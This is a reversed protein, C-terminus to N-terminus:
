KSLRTQPDKDVSQDSVVAKQTKEASDTSKSKRTLLVTTRRGVAENKVDPQHRLEMSSSKRSNQRSRTDNKSKDIAVDDDETDNERKRSTSCKNAAKFVFYNVLLFKFIFKSKSASNTSGKLRLRKSRARVVRSHVRKVFIKRTQVDPISRCRKLLEELEALDHDSTMRNVDAIIKETTDGEAMVNEVVNSVYNTSKTEDTLIKFNDVEDGNSYNEFLLKSQNILQRCQEAM